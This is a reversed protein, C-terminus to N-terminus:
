KGSITSHRLCRARCCSIVYDIVYAGCLFCLAAVGVFRALLTLRQNTTAQFTTRTSTIRGETCTTGTPSTRACTSGVTITQYFQVVPSFTSPTAPGRGDCHLTRLCLKVVDKDAQEEARPIDGERV